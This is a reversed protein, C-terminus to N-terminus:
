FKSSAVPRRNFFYLGMRPHFIALHDFFDFNTINFVFFDVYLTISRELWVGVEGEVVVSGKFVIQLAAELIEQTERDIHLLTQRHTVM